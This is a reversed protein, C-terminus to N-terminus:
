EPSLLDGGTRERGHPGNARQAHLRESPGRRHRHRHRHRLGVVAASGIALRQRAAKDVAMHEGIASPQRRAKLHGIM